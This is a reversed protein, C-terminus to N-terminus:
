FLVSYVYISAAYDSNEPFFNVFIFCGASGIHNKTHRLKHSSWCRHVKNQSSVRVIHAIEGSRNPYLM